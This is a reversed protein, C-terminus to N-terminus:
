AVAGALIEQEIAVERADLKYWQLLARCSDRLALM